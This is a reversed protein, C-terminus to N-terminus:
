LMGVQSVFFCRKSNQVDFMVFPVFMENWNADIFRSLPDIGDVWITIKKLM